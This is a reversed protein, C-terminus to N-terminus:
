STGPPTSTQFRVRLDKFLEEPSVPGLAMAEIPCPGTKTRNLIRPVLRDFSAIIGGDELIQKAPESMLSGHVARVGFLVCMKAVAVGVVRDALAAGDVDGKAADVAELLPKVGNGARAALEIGDRVLVVSYGSDLLSRALSLDNSNTPNTM